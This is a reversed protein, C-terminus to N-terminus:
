KWGKNIDNTGKFSDGARVFGEWYYARYSAPWAQAQETLWAWGDHQRNGFFEDQATFGLRLAHRPRPTPPLWIVQMALWLAARRMAPDAIWRLTMRQTVPWPFSNRWPRRYAFLNPCQSSLRNSHQALSNTKQHHDTDWQEVTFTCLDNLVKLFQAANLTETIQRPAVGDVARAISGEFEMLESLIIQELDNLAPHLRTYSDIDQPLSGTQVLPVRHRVCFSGTVVRWVAREYAPKGTQLTARICEPCIIMWDDCALIWPKKNAASVGLRSPDCRALRALYRLDSPELAADIPLDPFSRTPGIFPKVALAHLLQRPKMGYTAAVRRIWSYLAEARYPLPALPLPAVANM